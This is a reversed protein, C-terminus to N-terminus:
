LLRWRLLIPRTYYISPSFTFHMGCSYWNMEKPSMLNKTIRISFILALLMSSNVTHQRIASTQCSSICHRWNRTRRLRRSGDLLEEKESEQLYNQPRDRLYKRSLSTGSLKYIQKCPRNSLLSEGFRPHQKNSLM